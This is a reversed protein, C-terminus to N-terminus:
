IEAKAEKKCSACLRTAVRREVFPSSWFTVRYFAFITSEGPSCLTPTRSLLPQFRFGQIDNSITYLGHVFVYWECIIAVDATCFREETRYGNRGNKKKRKADRERRLYLTRNRQLLERNAFTASQEHTYANGEFRRTEVGKLDSWTRRGRQALQYFTKRLPPPPRRFLSLILPSLSSPSRFSCSREILVSESFRHRFYLRIIVYRLLLSYTFPSRTFSLTDM